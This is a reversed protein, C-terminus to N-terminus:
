QKGTFEEELDECLLTAFGICIAARFLTRIMM